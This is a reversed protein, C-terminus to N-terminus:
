VVISTSTGVFRLFDVWMLRGKDSGDLVVGQLKTNSGMHGGLLLPWRFSTLLSFGFTARDASSRCM